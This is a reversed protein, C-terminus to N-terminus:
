IALRMELLLHATLYRNLPTSFYMDLGWVHLVDHLLARSRIMEM